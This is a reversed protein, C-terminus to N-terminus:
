CTTEFPNSLLDTYLCVFKRNRNIKTKGATFTNFYLNSFQNTM